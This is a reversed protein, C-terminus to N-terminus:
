QSLPVMLIRTTGKRWVLMEITASAPAAALDRYFDGPSNDPDGQSEVIIDGPALGSKKAQGGPTVAQVAVGYFSQPLRLRMRLEPTLSALDAGFRTKAPPIIDNRSGITVPVTERKGKRLLTITAHTGPSLEGILDSLYNAAMVKSQNVATVIDGPQLGAKEAAGGALVADIAAGQANALGLRRVMPPGVDGFAAGLAGGRDNSGEEAAVPPIVAPPVPVFVMAQIAAPRGKIRFPKFRWRNVVALVAGRVASPLGLRAISGKRVVGDAGVRVIVPVTGWWDNRPAPAPCQLCSTMLTLSDSRVAEGTGGELSSVAVSVTSRLPRPKAMRAYPIAFRWQRVTALVAKAAPAPVGPQSPALAAGAVAGNAGVLLNVRVKGTWNVPPAPACIRCFRMLLVPAVQMPGSSPAAPASPATGPRARPGALEAAPLVALPPLRTLDIMELQNSAFDTVYLTKGDPSLREERPFSGAALEAAYLPGHGWSRWDSSLVILHQPARLAGFRNSSAVVLRSGVLAIGVPAVGAPEQGLLARAPDSVLRKTDFALVRNEGRATVYATAGDKSLILRVPSCGGPALSLVSHAPDREARAVDIVEIEGPPGTNCSTTIGSLGSAIESTSYLRKGSPSLTVAIPAEGTPIDGVISPTKFGSARTQALNVVTITDAGENAVFLYRDDRTVSVYIAGGFQNGKISYVPPHENGGALAAVDIATVSGGTAALLLRGDHTLAMGTPPGPLPVTFQLRLQGSARRYVALERKQTLGVFVWCGDASPIPTFPFGPASVFTVANKPPATCATPFPVRPTQAPLNLAAGCCALLLFLRLYRM